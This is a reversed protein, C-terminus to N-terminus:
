REDTQPLSLPFRPSAADLLALFAHLPAPTGEVSVVDQRRPLPQAGSLIAYLRNKPGKIRMLSKEVEAENVPATNAAGRVEFLM